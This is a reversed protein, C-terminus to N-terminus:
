AKKRRRIVTVAGSEVCLKVKDSTARNSIGRSKESKLLLNELPYYVGESHAVLADGAFPFVSIEDGPRAPFSLEGRTFFAAINGDDIRAELGLTDAYALLNLNGIVHETKGGFGGYITVSGFGEGAIYDLALEGDTANKEVPFRVIYVGDPLVDLTDFDGILANVRKGLRMCHRYGGDAAVVFGEKIDANLEPANLVLAATKGNM